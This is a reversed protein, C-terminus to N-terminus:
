NKRAAWKVCIHANRCVSQQRFCHLFQILGKIWDAKAVAFDLM